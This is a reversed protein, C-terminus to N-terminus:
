FFIRVDLGADPRIFGDHRKASVQQILVAHGHRLSLPNGILTKSTWGGFISCTGLSLFPKLREASATRSRDTVRNKRIPATMTPRNAYKFRPRASSGLNVIFAKVTVAANGPAVACSICSRTASGSSFRM